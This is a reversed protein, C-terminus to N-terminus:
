VQHPGLEHFTTLNKLRSTAHKEQWCQLTKTLIANNRVLGIDFSKETDAHAVTEERIDQWLRITSVVCEAVVHFRQLLVTIM